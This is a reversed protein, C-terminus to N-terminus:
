TEMSALLDELDQMDMIQRLGKIDLKMSNLQKVTLANREWYYLLIQETLTKNSVIM